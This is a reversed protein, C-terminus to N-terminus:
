KVKVLFDIWIPLAAKSGTEKSGIPTNDDKGVWVGVALTDTYGIFWADTCDNTTGTKGAASTGLKKAKKATGNQVVEKLLVDMQHATNRDVVREVSRKVREIIIGKRNKITTYPTLEYMIGGNPFVTYVHVLEILRVGSAGLALPLYPKLTNKSIGLAEARQITYDIGAYELLQVAVTNISKALATKLTMPGKYSLNYNHPTWIKGWEDEYCLPTDFVIDDIRYGKELAALYVLPKFASGPQRKAQTARNFQSDWFNRGGVMARIHGNKIDVAILAAQVNKRGRKSIRKIGQEVAQEAYNQMVTNLTSRITFGGTTLKEGYKAELRARLYEYFYPAKVKMVREKLVIDEKRAEIMERHTIYGLKAMSSLVLMCRKEARSLYKLPNYASPAKPLGALLSGQKLSLKHTPIGFYIQSAAEIGYAGAGFFTQNLYLELIEDKTYRKEIELALAAEKLKRMIRRDPTLFLNKALQQTITSGGQVFSRAKVDAVVARSIGILDVGHHQYFREDEIAIFANKVHDPVKKISIFTRQETFFEGLLKGDESFVKSSEAPEYHELGAVAPLDTLNWYIFAGGVGTLVSLMIFIVVSLVKRHRKLPPSKVNPRKLSKSRQQIM